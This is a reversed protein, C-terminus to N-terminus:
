RAETFAQFINLDISTLTRSFVCICYNFDLRLSWEETILIWGCAEARLLHFVVATKMGWYTCYLRLIWGETLLIWGCAEARLHGYMMMRVTFFFNMEIAQVMKKFCFFQSTSKSNYTFEEWGNTFVDVYKSICTYNCQYNYIYIVKKRLAKKRCSISM